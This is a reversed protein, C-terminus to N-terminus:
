SSSKKRMEQKLRGLDTESYDVFRLFIEYVPNFRIVEKAMDTAIKRYSDHGQPQSRLECLWQLARGNIHFFWRINYALPVLYQAEEPFEQAIQDYAERAREMAERFQSEMPTDLLQAPMQYGLNTSLLQREQTLTRHRQLDRYAGFDSVIDFGFSVNELGRPSKHRRNERSSAGAELIRTLDEMPMSRCIDILTDYSHQSYPFLFGAAVKYIGDPDGYVLKVRADKAIPTDEGFKEALSTLQERLTQWYGLMAQHHHHHSEARSVFSPIIKMLEVLSSEGIQKIESLNHGQIKHLLTQWFRGNGFFGLNTLTAAPLLGRLCDLVKARLSITYASQSVESDKPYIKEFYSRVQPILDSYTDFLFDCTTLFLDKFASTMLIPDRYYLYEGRVKQDFYVYRSSKELPSGGIRADELIKAALMSVNEVALHAGGLEGISDDGYGDLVRRYFDSAKQIGVEFDSGSPDLFSGGEGELFEKLLLSRLGLTSRSYKSFLAGKVVEPLNKLAFINSNLNTVFHLLSKKQEESFEEDRSLM